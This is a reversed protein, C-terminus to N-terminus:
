EGQVWEHYDKILDRSMEDRNQYGLRLLEQYVRSEGTLIRLRIMTGLPCQYEGLSEEDAAKFRDLYEETFMADLTQYCYELRDGM